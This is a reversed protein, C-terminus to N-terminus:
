VKRFDNWAWILSRRAMVSLSHVRYRATGRVDDIPSAADAVLAAFHQSIADPLARRSEWLGGDALAQALFGEAEPARPTGAGATPPRSRSSGGRRPRGGRRQRWRGSAPASPRAIPTCPWASRRSPSSWRM